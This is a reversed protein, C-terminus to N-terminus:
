AQCSEKRAQEAAGRTSYCAGVPIDRWDDGFTSVPITFQNTVAFREGNYWVWDNPGVYEGDKTKRCRKEVVERLQALEDDKEAQKRKIQRDLDAKIQEVNLDSMTESEKRESPRTARRCPM